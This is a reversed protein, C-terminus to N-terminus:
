AKFRWNVLLFAGWSAEHKHMFTQNMLRKIMPDHTRIGGPEGIFDLPEMIKGQGKNGLFEIPSCM